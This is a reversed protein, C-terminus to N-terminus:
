LSEQSLFIAVVIALLGFSIGLSLRLNDFAVGITLGSSCCLVVYYIFAPLKSIKKETVKDTDM